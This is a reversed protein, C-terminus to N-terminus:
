TSKEMDSWFVVYRHLAEISKFWSTVQDRGADNRKYPM